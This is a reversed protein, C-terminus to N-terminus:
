SIIGGSIKYNRIKAAEIDLQIFEQQKAFTKKDWEHREAARKSMAIERAERADMAKLTECGQVKYEHLTKEAVDAIREQAMAIRKLYNAEM